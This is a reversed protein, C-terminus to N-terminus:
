PYVEIFISTFNLIDDAETGTSDYTQIVIDDVSNWVIRIFSGAGFSLNRQNPPHIFTKNEPFAGIKTLSYNGASNKTLVPAGVTDIFPTNAGSGNSEITPADGGAQSALIKYAKVGSIGLADVLANFDRSYVPIKDNSEFPELATYQTVRRAAM